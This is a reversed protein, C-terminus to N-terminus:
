DFAGAFRQSRVVYDADLVELTTAITMDLSPSLASLANHASRSSFLHVGTSDGYDEYDRGSADVRGAVGGLLSIWLASPSVAVM